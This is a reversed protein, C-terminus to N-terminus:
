SISFGHEVDNQIFVSFNGSNYFAFHEAARVLVM